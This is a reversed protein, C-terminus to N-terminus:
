LKKKSFMSESKCLLKFHANVYEPTLQYTSGSFTVLVRETLDLIVAVPGCVVICFGHWM